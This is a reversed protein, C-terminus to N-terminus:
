SGLTGGGVGFGFFAGTPLGFNPRFSGLSSYPSVMIAKLGYPLVSMSFFDFFKLKRRWSSILSFRLNLITMARTISEITGNMINKFFASALKRLAPM